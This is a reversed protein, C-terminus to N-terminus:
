FLRFYEGVSVIDCRCSSQLSLVLDTLGTVQDSLRVLKKFSIRLLWHLASNREALIKILAVVAMCKQSSEPLVVFVV